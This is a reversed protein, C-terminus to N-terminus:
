QENAANGNQAFSSLLRQGEAEYVQLAGALEEYSAKYQDREAQLQQMVARQEVIKELKDKPMVSDDPLADVYEDFSIIGATLLSSLNQEVAYKSFTTQPSVDVKVTLKMRELMATPILGMRWITADETAAQGDDGVMENGYADYKPMKEVSEYTFKLGEETATAQWIDWWVRGIDEVFKKVSATQMSLPLANADQVALIATGSAHDPKTDATADKGAFMQTQNILDNIYNRVDPSMSQMPMYAVAKLVDDVGGRVSIATGVTALDQPNDVRTEDFVQKPFAYNMISVAQRALTCNIEVQNPIWEEVDGKGRFSGKKKNWPLYAVPYLEQYSKTPKLVDVHRTAKRFWVVGDKKWMFLLVLTKGYEESVYDIEEKGDGLQKSLDEDDPVISKIKDASVGNAKAEERVESVMRRYPIIVFKQKQIDTQQEDAVLVEVNDKLEVKVQDGDWYSYLASGGCVCASRCLEWLHTDMNNQEWTKRAFDNLKTSILETFAAVEEDEYEMNSYNISMGSRLVTAVKFDVTPKLINLQPQPMGEPAENQWQYGEYFDICKENKRRIGQKEIYEICKEYLAWTETIDRKKAESM